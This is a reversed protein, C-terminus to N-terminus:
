VPAPAGTLLLESVDAPIPWTAGTTADALVLVTEAIVAPEARAHARIESRLRFSTRGVAVVKMTVILPEPQIWLEASYEVDQRRILHRVHPPVHDLIGPGSGPAKPRGLFTRRAEEIIRVAAVNNVHQAPGLDDYRIAIPVSLEPSSM